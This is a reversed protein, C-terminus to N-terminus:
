YYSKVNHQPIKCNRCYYTKGKLHFGHIGVLCKFYFVPKQQNCKCEPNGCRKPNSRLMPDGEWDDTM